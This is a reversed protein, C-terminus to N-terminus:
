YFEKIRHNETIMDPRGNTLSFVYFNQMTQTRFKIWSHAM